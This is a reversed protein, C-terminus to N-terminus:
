WDKSCAMVKGTYFFDPVKPNDTILRAKALEPSEAIVFFAQIISEKNKDLVTGTFEYLYKPAKM